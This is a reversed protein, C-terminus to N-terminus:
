SFKFHYRVCFMKLRHQITYDGVPIFDRPVTKSTSSATGHKAASSLRFSPPGRDQRVAGEAGGIQIEVLFARAYGSGDADRLKIEFNDLAHTPRLAEREGTAHHVPGILAPSTRLCAQLHHAARPSGAGGSV